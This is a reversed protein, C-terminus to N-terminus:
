KIKGLEHINEAVPPEAGAKKKSSYLKAELWLPISIIVDYLSLFIDCSYRVIAAFLRLLLVLIHLLQVVLIGLIVRSSEVLSEFPIATFMLIFPLFFALIMQAAQPIAQRAMFGPSIAEPVTGTLAFLL